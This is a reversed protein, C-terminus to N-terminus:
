ITILNKKESHFQADFMLKKKSYNNIQKSNAVLVVFISKEHFKCFELQCIDVAKTLNQKTNIKIQKVLKNM